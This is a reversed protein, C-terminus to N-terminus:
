GLNINYSLPHLDGLAEVGSWKKWWYVLTFDREPMVGKVRHLAGQQSIQRSAKAGAFTGVRLCGKGWCGRWRSPTGLGGLLIMQM